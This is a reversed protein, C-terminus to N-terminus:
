FFQLKDVFDWFTPIIINKLASFYASWPIFQICAKKYKTKLPLNDMQKRKKKTFQPFANM